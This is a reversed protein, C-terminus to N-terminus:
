EVRDRYLLCMDGAEVCIRQTLYEPVQLKRLQLSCPQQEKGMRCAGFSESIIGLM